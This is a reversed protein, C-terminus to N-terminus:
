GTDRGPYRRKKAVDGQKVVVRNVYGSARFFLEDQKSPVIEANLYKKMVIPGREVTFIANEVSVVPPLPTPTPQGSGSSGCAAILLALLPALLLASLRTLRRGRRSPLVTICHNM